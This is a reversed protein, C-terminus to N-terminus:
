IAISNPVRNPSLYNYPVELTSNRTKINNCIEELHVRFKAIANHADTETFLNEAYDGLFRQFCVFM